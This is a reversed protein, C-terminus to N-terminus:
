NSGEEFKTLCSNVAVAIEYETADAVFAEEIKCFKMFKEVEDEPLGTLEMVIQENYKAKIVKRYDYSAIDDQLKKDAKAKRSFKNYFFSIPGGMSISPNANMPVSRVGPIAIKTDEPGPGPDMDIIAQKLSEEDRYAFVNVPKLVQTSTNMEISIRIRQSRQDPRLMFAYTEYGIASFLVTDAPKMRIWFRGETNSVTGLGSTSNIIHVYPVPDGSVAERIEGEIQIVFTNDQALLATKCAM